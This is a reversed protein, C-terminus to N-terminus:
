LGPFGMHSLQHVQVRSFDLMFLIFCSSQRPCMFVRGYPLQGLSNGCAFAIAKGLNGRDAGVRNVLSLLLEICQTKEQFTMSCNSYLILEFTPIMRSGYCVTACGTDDDHRLLVPQAGGQCGPWLM